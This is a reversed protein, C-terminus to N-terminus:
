ETGAAFVVTGPANSPAAPAYPVPMFTMGPNDAVGLRYVNKFDLDRAVFVRVPDGQNKLLTPPINIYQRLAETAMDQAARSSNDYTIYNNDGSNRRQSDIVAQLLDSWTSLLLASGLRLGWHNDIDGDLGSRGLADAAGSDLNIIVGKPTEARTWLCFVRAQGNRLQGKFEGVLRTGRELLVVKGNTSYVDSTVLAKVMGPLDSSMATEMVAEVFTGKTLLFNRDGLTRALAKPTAAGVLERSLTNDTSTRREEGSDGASMGQEPKTQLAIVPSKMKRQLALEDPSLEKKVPAPPPPPALQPQPSTSVGGTPAQPTSQPPPPPSPPRTITIPPLSQEVKRSTDVATAAEAAARRKEAQASFYKWALFVLLVLACVTVFIITLRKSLRTNQTLSEPSRDGELTLKEQDPM